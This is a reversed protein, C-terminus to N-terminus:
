YNKLNLVSFSVGIAPEFNVIGPIHKLSELIPKIQNKNNESIKVEVYGRTENVSWDFGLNKLKFRINKALKKRFFPQNIGKLGIEGYHIFIRNIKYKIM